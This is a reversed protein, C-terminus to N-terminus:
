RHHPTSRLTIPRSTSQNVSPQNIEICETVEEISTFRVVSCEDVRHDPHAPRARDIAIAMPLDASRQFLEM